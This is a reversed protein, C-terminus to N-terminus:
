QSNFEPGGTCFAACSGVASIRGGKIDNVFTVENNITFLTEVANQLIIDLSPTLKSLLVM